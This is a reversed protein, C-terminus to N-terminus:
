IKLCIEKDKLIQNKLEQSNDFKREERIFKKFVIELKSGYLLGSFNFIHTELTLPDFNFTPRHGINMMGKFNDGNIRIDVAYVGRRPILKGPDTPRLNATPFGLKKGRSEGKEVIGSLSYNRGLLRNALEINGESLLQRIRSSSAVENDIRHPEIVTVSFGHTEGLEKLQNAHGERNRGFAHDYGIVMKKMKLKKLLIQEVFNRYTLRSFDRTFPIVLLVPLGYMELIQIKEELPTLLEIRTQPGTSLVQKPHPHFTVLVEQCDCDQAQKELEQLLQQHGLHIGDFSGVTLVSHQPIEIEEIQRFIKM